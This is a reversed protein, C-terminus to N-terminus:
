VKQEGCVWVKSINPSLLDYFFENWNADTTFFDASYGPLLAGRYSQEGVAHAAGTTWAAFVEPLSMNMKLRALVGVLQISQSPSTGPNFDTSLAVRVGADIMKRAPPYPCHIYFDANPLLVYTTKSQALMQIDKDTVCINHDSSKAEIEDALLASGSRSLQEAHVCVDFGLSKAFLLYDKADDVSFYGKEVFIDVRKALKKKAIVVLDKKLTKLYEQATMNKPVAHAGLFTPIVNVKTKAKKIAQLLKIEYVSELGYGTKVEVTTVGQELFKQLREELAHSLKEVSGKRTANVTSYIGGGKRAIEEYSIGTNRMEFEQRRDGLFISHTHCEIFGPFVNAKLAKEQSTFYAKPLKSKKGTWVIQGAQVVMSQNKEISLHEEKIPGRAGVAVAKKLTMLEYINSYLIAKKSM